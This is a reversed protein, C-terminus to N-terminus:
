RTSYHGALDHNLILAAFSPTEASCKVSRRSGMQWFATGFFLAILLTFVFRISNYEARVHGVTLDVPMSHM